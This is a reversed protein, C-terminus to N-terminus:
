ATGCRGAGRITQRFFLIRKIPEAKRLCLRTLDKKATDVHVFFHCPPQRAPRAHPDSMIRGVNRFFSVWSLLLLLPVGNGYFSKTWFDDLREGISLLLHGIPEIIIQYQESWWWNGRNFWIDFM